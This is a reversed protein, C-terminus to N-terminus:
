FEADISAYLALVSRSVAIADDSTWTINSKSIGMVSKYQEKLGPGFHTHFPLTELESSLKRNAVEIKSHLESINTNIIGNEVYISGQLTDFELRLGTTKSGSTIVFRINPYIFTYESSDSLCNVYKTLPLNTVRIGLVQFISFYHPLFEAVIERIDRNARINLYVSSQIISSERDVLFSRVLNFWPEYLLQSVMVFESSSKVIAMELYELELKSLTLPKECVVQLCRELSLLCAPSHEEIPLCVSVGDLNLQKSDAILNKYDSYFAINDIWEPCTFDAFAVIKVHNKIRQLHSFHAKGSRGLGLIAWKKPSTDAIM